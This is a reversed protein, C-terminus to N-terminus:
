ESATTNEFIRCTIDGNSWSSNIDQGQDNKEKAEALEIFVYIKDGANLGTIDREANTGKGGGNGDLHIFESYNCTSDSSLVAIRVNANTYLNAHSEDPTYKYSLAIKYSANTVGEGVTYALTSWTGNLWGAKIESIINNDGNRQIWANGNFETSETFVFSETNGTNGPLRGETPANWNYDTRGYKWGSTNDAVIGNRYDTVYNDLEYASAATQKGCECVEHRMGTQYLTAEEDVVWEMTHNSRTTEDIANCVSCQKYHETEGQVWDYAHEGTAPIEGEKTENCGLCTYTGSGAAGCTAPTQTQTLEWNHDGTSPITEQKTENCICTYTIHGDDKCNANVRNTETWNGEHSARETTYTCNADGTCVQWHETDDHRWELEHNGTAPVTENKTEECTLCQYTKSGATICTAAVTQEELLTEFAHEGTAPIEKNQTETCTACQYVASGAENCTAEKTTEKLITFTHNSKPIDETKTQHCYSCEYKMTGMESCTPAKLQSGEDWDHETHAPVTDTSTEGCVTCTYTITGEVTLDPQDVEGDDWTHTTLKSISETKTEKCVTCTFTKEGELACTAERTVKGGDWVHDTCATETEDCAAFGCAGVLALATTFIVLGFKRKM